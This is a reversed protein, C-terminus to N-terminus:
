LLTKDVVKKINNEKKVCKELNAFFIKEIVSNKYNRKLFEEYIEEFVEAGCKKGVLNECGDFDSGFGLINEGGLDLVYEIHEFLKNVTNDGVFENYLTLGFFGNKDILRKIQAKKLNRPHEKVDYCNGHSFLVNEFENICSYFMKEGAHALDIYIDNQDLEQLFCNGFITLEWDDYCSGGFDNQRNWMPGVYVPKSNIIYDLDKLGQVWGLGEFALYTNQLIHTTKYAEAQEKVSEASSVNGEFCALISKKLLSEETVADLVSSKGKIRKSLYDCHGDFIYM